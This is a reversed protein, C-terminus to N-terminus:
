FRENGRSRTFLWPECHRSAEASSVWSVIMSVRQEVCVEPLKRWGRVRLGM